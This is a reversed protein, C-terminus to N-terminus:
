TATNPATLFTSIPWIVSAPRSPLKLNPADSSM